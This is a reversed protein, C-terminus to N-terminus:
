TLNKWLVYHNRHKNCDEGFKKNLVKCLGHQLRQLSGADIAKRQFPNGLEPPRVFLLKQRTKEATGNVQTPRDITMLEETPPALMLKERSKKKKVSM